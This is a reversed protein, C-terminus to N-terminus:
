SELEAAAALALRVTPECSLSLGGPWNLGHFTLIAWAPLETRIRRIMIRSEPQAEVRTTIAAARSGPGPGTRPAPTLHPPRRGRRGGCTICKWEIIYRAEYARFTLINKHKKTDADTDPSANTLSQGGAGLGQGPAM